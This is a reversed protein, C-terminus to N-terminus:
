IIGSNIKKILDNENEFSIGMISTLINIMLKNNNDSIIYEIVKYKPKILIYIKIIIIIEDM